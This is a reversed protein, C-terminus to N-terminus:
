AVAELRRVRLALVIWAALTILGLAAYSYEVDYRMMHAPLDFMTNAVKMFNGPLSLIQFRPERELHTLMFSIPTPLVFVAFTAVLAFSKRSSVSSVALIVSSCVTVWLAGYAITMPIVDGEQKLFSWNPSAFTAVTCVVLGPVIAAMSGFFALALFKALLYDLRTLPRAFYLLHAGVRRDEAIEGAGFWAVILFAFMTMAEHFRAIQNKVQLLTDAMGAMLRMGPNAAGGFADPTTGQDLSFRVYVVFSFIVTAIVPPAFLILLPLKRKTATRISARALPLFRLTSPRLKGQFKRYIETNTSAM